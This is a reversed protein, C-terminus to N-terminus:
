STSGSHDCAEEAVGGAEDAGAETGDADNDSQDSANSRPSLKFKGTKTYPRKTADLCKDVPEAERIANFVKTLDDAELRVYLAELMHTPALIQIGDDLVVFAMAPQKKLRPKKKQVGNFLQAVAATTGGLGVKSDREAILREIVSSSALSSNKPAKGFIAKIIPQSYAALKLYKVGNIEKILEKPLDVERSHEDTQLAYRQLIQLQM